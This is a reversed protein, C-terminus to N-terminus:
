VADYTSQNYAPGSATVSTCIPAATLFLAVQFVSEPSCTPDHPGLSQNNRHGTFYDDLNIRLSLEQNYFALEYTNQGRPFLRVSSPM